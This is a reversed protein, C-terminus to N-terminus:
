EAASVLLALIWERLSPHLVANGNMEEGGSACIDARGVWLFLRMLSWLECLCSLLPARTLVKSSLCSRTRFHSLVKMKSMMLIACGNRETPDSMFFNTRTFMEDGGGEHLVSAPTNGVMSSSQQLRRSALWAMDCGPPGSQM